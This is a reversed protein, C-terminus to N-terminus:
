ATRNVISSTASARRYREGTGSRAILLTLVALAAGVPAWVFREWPSQSALNMLAGITLVVVLVWTGRRLFVAPLRVFEIGIRGLVITAALLWVVIAVGSAIRLEAPLSTQTGGWAARGLPAGLALAAQFVAIALFGFAALIAAFRIPVINEISRM